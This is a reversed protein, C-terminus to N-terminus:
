HHAPEEVAQGIFLATLLTFIYAQLAAVLLKILYMFVTFAVMAVGVGLSGAKGIQPGLIFILSILSLVLIHGATINAFLRIMLAFPKTIIGVLEIPILIFKVPVPVGPPWLMHGWYHKNGSGVILLLSLVALIFTVAINGTVNTSGPFFPVLGILNNIWIFFFLTLLYPLYKNYKKEGISKRAIEDRVFIIIPELFSQMGKPAKGERTRYANAAPIFLLFMVLVGVMMSFVNKTISIDYFGARSVEFNQGQYIVQAQGNEGTTWDVEVNGAPFDGEAKMLRGHNLVFGDIANKGHHFKSSLMFRLGTEQSYFIVPLPFSLDGVIHFENQDGIHHAIMATPDFKGEKNGAAFSDLPFFACFLFLSFVFILVESRQKEKIEM